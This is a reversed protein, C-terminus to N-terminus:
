INIKGKINDKYNLVRQNAQKIYSGVDNPHHADSATIIEVNNKLLIELLEDSLGLDKHNYRYYCGTNCEALMHHENLKKAMLNYADKLDYTPYYNFLKITDPHALQSFLDSEILDMVLEYYRKYIQNTDFKDWLIEKSFNMDYLIGDISHIAGVLFEFKYPKLVDKIFEKNQPTYCIELGYKINIPLNDKKIEEMLNVYDLLNDKFKMKKNELWIKQVEIKKLDEYMPEFEIFRHSHDLIHIEDLGKEIAENVFEMVYSKDLPGYELHMHSDILM